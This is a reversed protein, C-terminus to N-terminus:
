KPGETHAYSPLGSHSKPYPFTALPLHQLCTNSDSIASVKLHGRSIILYGPSYILVASPVQIPIKDERGESLRKSKTPTYIHLSQQGTTAAPCSTLPVVGVDQVKRSEQSSLKPLFDHEKDGQTGWVMRRRCSPQRCLSSWSQTIISTATGVASSVEHSSDGRRDPPSLKLFSGMIHLSSSWRMGSPGGSTILFGGKHASCRRPM